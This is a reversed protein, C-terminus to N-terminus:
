SESSMRVEGHLTLSPENTGLSEQVINDYEGMRIEAAFGMEHALFKLYPIISEVTVNRLVSINLKPLHDFRAKNLVEQIEAFTVNFM